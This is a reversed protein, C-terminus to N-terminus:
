EEKTVAVLEGDNIHFVLGLKEYLYKANELTLYSLSKCINQM